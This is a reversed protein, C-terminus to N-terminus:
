SREWNQVFKIKRIEPVCQLGVDITPEGSKARRRLGVTGESGISILKPHTATHVPEGLEALQQFFEQAEEFSGQMVRTDGRRSRGLEGVPINDPVLIARLKQRLEEAM